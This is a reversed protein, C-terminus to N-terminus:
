LNILILATLIPPTTLMVANNEGGFEKFDAQYSPQQQLVFSTSDETMNASFIDDFKAVVLGILVLKM